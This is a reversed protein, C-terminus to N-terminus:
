ALDPRGPGRLFADDHADAFLILGMARDAGRIGVADGHAPQIQAALHDALHIEGAIEPQQDGAARGALRLAEEGVRHQRRDGLVTQHGAHHSRPHGEGGRGLRKVARDGGPQQAASRHHQAAGFDRASEIRAQHRLRRAAGRRLRHRAIPDGQAPMKM